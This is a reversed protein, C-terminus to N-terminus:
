IAIEMTVIMLDFHKLYDVFNQGILDERRVKVPCSCNGAFDSKEFIRPPDTKTDM